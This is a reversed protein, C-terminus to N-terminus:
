YEHINVFILTELLSYENWAWVNFVKFRRSRLAHVDIGRVVRFFRIPENGLRSSATIFLLPFM